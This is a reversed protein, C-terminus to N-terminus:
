EKYYNFILSGEIWHTHRFSIKWLCAEIWDRWIIFIMSLHAWYALFCSMYNSVSAIMVPKNFIVNFNKSTLKNQFRVHLSIIRLFVGTLHFDVYRLEGHWKEHSLVYLKYITDDYFNKTVRTIKFFFYWM